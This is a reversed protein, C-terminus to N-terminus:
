GSFGKPNQEQWRWLDRCMDELNKQCKWGLEKEALSPNCYCTAVDGPRREVLKYPVKKGSAKEFAAVMELVSYGKGTGLNYIKCGVHNKFLKLVEVHGKALDVVHIYDRVGTGDPTEYDSGFVKLEKQRGGATQAVFPMLNNPPGQPDEGIRGSEHAGVPNFYRLILIDWSEDSAHLDKLIEEVMYKTKGYPNTIGVGIPHKEDIPLYQPTGYVTASSSFVIRKVNAARAAELLNLTGAVNNKYYDLPLRASEGVAKLAACHIICFIKYKKFLEALQSSNLMDVTEFAIKKKTLEEVRDLSVPKGKGDAIANAFNDVAVVDYGANLLEVICHSGVYGAGGTVLVVERSNGEAM